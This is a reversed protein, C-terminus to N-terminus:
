AARRARRRALLGFVGLAAALLGGAAPVPVPAPTGVVALDLNAGTGVVEDWKVILKGMGEPDIEEALQVYGSYSETMRVREGDRWVLTLNQFVGTVQLLTFHATALSDEEATFRFTFKQWGDGQNATVDFFFPGDNLNYTHGHQLTSSPSITVAGAALPAAALAVALSLARIM